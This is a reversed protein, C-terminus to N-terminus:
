GGMLLQTWFSCHHDELFTRQRTPAPTTLAHVYNTLLSYRRFYPDRSWPSSPAGATAFRTWYGRMTTALRQQEQTLTFQDVQSEDPTFLYLLESAHAAGYPISTPPVLPMPANSDAFEYFYTPVTLSFIQATIVTPCAFSADGSVTAFAQGPSEYDSLPYEALIRQTALQADLGLQSALMAALQEVQEPYGDATLPEGALDFALASLITGEDRNVGIMVPVRNFLGFALALLPQYPVLDGDVNPVHTSLASTDVVLDSISLQKDLIQQPSLARLCALTEADTERQCSFTRTYEAGTKEAASLEPLPLLACPGSQLIAGSFLPGAAPAALMGCINFAGASQGVLTVRRPDGGFANINQQVWRLALLQDLLAYNGSVGAESGRSLEPSAMYGLLGMRYNLTVVIVNGETVLDAPYYFSSTGVIQAGGHLFVMVPMSDSLQEAPAFVNLFLCDEDTSAEGFPSEVQPCSRGFTSADLPGTTTPADSPAPPAWRLKGTPAKAFRIGRFANVGDRSKGVYSAAPFIGSPTEVVPGSAVTGSLAAAGVRWVHEEPEDNPPLAVCGVISAALGLSVGGRGWTSIILTCLDKAIGM